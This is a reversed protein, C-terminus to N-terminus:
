GQFSGGVDSHPQNVLLTPHPAVVEDNDQLLYEITSKRAGVMQEAHVTTSDNWKAATTNKGLKNVYPSSQKAKKAMVKSQIKFNDLVMWLLNPATLDVSVPDYYHVM